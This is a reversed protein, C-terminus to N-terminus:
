STKRCLLAANCEALREEWKALEEARIKEQDPQGPINPANYLRGLKIGEINRIAMDRVRLTDDKTEYLSCLERDIKSALQEDGRQMAEWKQQRLLARKEDRLLIQPDLNIM